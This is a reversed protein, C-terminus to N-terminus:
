LAEVQDAPQPLAACTHAHDHCLGRLFEDRRQRGPRQGVAADIRVQEVAVALEIDAVDAERALGLQDHDRGAGGIKQRPRHVAQGVIQGARHHEGRAARHQDRRRHVRVHPPVRRGLAIEDRARASPM